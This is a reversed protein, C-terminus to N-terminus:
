KKQIKACVQQGFGKEPYVEKLEKSAEISSISNDKPYLWFLCHGIHKKWEM